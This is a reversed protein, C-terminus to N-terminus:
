SPRTCGTPPSPSGNIAAVNVNNDPIVRSCRTAASRATSSMWDVGGRPLPHNVRREKM